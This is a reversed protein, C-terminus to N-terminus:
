RYYNLIIYYLLVIFNIVLILERQDRFKSHQDVRLPPLLLKPLRPLRVKLAGGVVEV